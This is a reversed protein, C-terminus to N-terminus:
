LYCIFAQAVEKLLTSIKLNFRMSLLHNCQTYRTILINAHENDLIHNLKKKAQM